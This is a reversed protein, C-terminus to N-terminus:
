WGLSLGQCMRLLFSMGATVSLLAKQIASFDFWSLMLLLLLILCSTKSHNLFFSFYIYRSLYYTVPDSTELGLDTNGPIIKNFQQSDNKGTNLTNLSSNLFTEGFAVSGLTNGPHEISPIDYLYLCVQSFLLLQFASHM